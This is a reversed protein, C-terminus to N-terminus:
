LMSNSSNINEDGVEKPKVIKNIIIGMIVALAFFNLMSISIAKLIYWDSFQQTSINQTENIKQAIYSIGVSAINATMHLLIPATISKYKEYVFVAVLGIIIAYPAQVWNGHFVGFLAASLIAAWRINVLDKLRKYILGRFILEEVVPAAFGAALFQVAVSSGYIVNEAGSYSEIMFKPMFMQLVSVFMNAWEMNFFGFPLILLYLWRNSLEFKKYTHAVKKHEIDKKMFIILIPITILASMMTLVLEKGHLTQAILINIEEMSTFGNFYWYAACVTQIVNILLIQIGLYILMPYIVGWIKKVLGTNKM